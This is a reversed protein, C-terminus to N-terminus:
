GLRVKGPRSVWTLGADGGVLDARGVRKKWWRAPGVQLSEEEERRGRMRAPCKKGRSGNHCARPEGRAVDCQRPLWTLSPVLGFRRVHEQEAGQGCLVRGYGCSTRWVDTARVGLDVPRRLGRVGRFGLAKGILQWTM